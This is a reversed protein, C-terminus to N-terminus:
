KSISIAISVIVVRYYYYDYHANLDQAAEMESRSKYKEYNKVSDLFIAKNYYNLIKTKLYSVFGTDKAYDSDNHSAQLEQIRKLWKCRGM